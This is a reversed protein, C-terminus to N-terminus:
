GRKGSLVQLHKRYEDVSIDGRASRDALVHKAHNRLWPQGAWVVVAVILLTWLMANNLTLITMGTSGTLTEM